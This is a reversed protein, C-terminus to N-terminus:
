NLLNTIDNALCNYARIPCITACVERSEGLGDRCEIFRLTTEPALTVKPLNPLARLLHWLWLWYIRGTRGRGGSRRSM